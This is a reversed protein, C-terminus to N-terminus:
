EERDPGIKFVVRYTGDKNEQVEYGMDERPRPPRAMYRFVQLFAPEDFDTVLNDFGLLYATDTFKRCSELFNAGTDANLARMYGNRGEGQNVIFLTNGFVIHKTEPMSLEAVLRIMTERLDFELDQNGYAIQVIEDISLKRQKSDVAQMM